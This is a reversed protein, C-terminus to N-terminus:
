RLSPLYFPKIEKKMSWYLPRELRDVKQINENIVSGGWVFYGPIQLVSVGAIQTPLSTELQAQISVVKIVFEQSNLSLQTLLLCSILLTRLTM